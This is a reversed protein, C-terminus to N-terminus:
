GETKGAAVTEAEGSDKEKEKQQEKLKAYLSPIYTGRDRLGEMSKRLVAM